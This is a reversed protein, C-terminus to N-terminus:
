KLDKILNLISDKDVEKYKLRGKTITTLTANEAAEELAEKAFAKMALEAKSDETSSMYIGHEKLVERAARM